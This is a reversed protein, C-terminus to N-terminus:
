CVGKKQRLTSAHVREHWKLVAQRATSLKGQQVYLVTLLSPSSGRSRFELKRKARRMPRAPVRDAWWPRMMSADAKCYKECLCSRDVSAEYSALRVEFSPSLPVPASLAAITM